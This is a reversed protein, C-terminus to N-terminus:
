EPTRKERIHNVTHFTVLCPLAIVLIFGDFVCFDFVDKAHVCVSIFCQTCVRVFLRAHCVCVCVYM